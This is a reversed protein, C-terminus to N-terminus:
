ANPTVLAWTGSQTATQANGPQFPWNRCRKRPKAVGANRRLPCLAADRDGALVALTAQDNLVLAKLRSEPLDKSLAAYIRRAEASEGMAASRCAHEYLTQIGLETRPPNGAKRRDTKAKKRQKSM